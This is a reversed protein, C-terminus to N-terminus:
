RNLWSAFRQELDPGHELWFETDIELGGATHNSMMLPNRARVDPNEAVAQTVPNIPWLRTLELLPAPSTIHEILRMGQAANPSGRVVAWSDYAYLLTSWRLNYRAGARIGNAVRGVFGVAYAVEGSNVLEIPQQGGTWFTVHPRLRDLAAFARQQGQPTALVKYVDAPAVGDGMLAIELTMRAGRRMSRRGPFRATDFFEVFNSPGNPHRAEDYFVSVGWGIAGAGCTTAGGPMFKGRDVVSWDIREFIGDECGRVLDPAEVMVVDWTVNGAAVMARIPGVNYDYATDVVPGGPFTAFLTRRMHDQLAGGGAVITLDRALAPVACLGLALAVFPALLRRMM